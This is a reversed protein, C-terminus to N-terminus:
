MVAQSANEGTLFRSGNDIQGELQRKREARRQFPMRVHFLYALEVVGLYSVM